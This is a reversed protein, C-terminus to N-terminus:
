GDDVEGDDDYVGAQVDQMLQIRERKEREFSAVSEPGERWLEELWKAFQPVAGYGHAKCLHNLTRLLERHEAEGVTGPQWWVLCETAEDPVGDPGHPKWTPAKDDIM